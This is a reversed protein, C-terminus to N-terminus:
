YCAYLNYFISTGTLNITSIPLFPAGLLLVPRSYNITIQSGCNGTGTAGPVSYDQNITVNSPDITIREQAAYQVAFQQIATTTAAPTTSGLIWNIPMASFRATERAANQLVQHERVILGLDIINLAILALIPLVFAMEVLVAGREGSKTKASRM